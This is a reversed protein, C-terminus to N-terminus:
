VGHPKRHEPKKYELFLIVSALRAPEAGMHEAIDALAAESVAIENRLGFTEELDDNLEGRRQMHSLRIEANEAIGNFASEFFRLHNIIIPNPLHHARYRFILRREEDTPVICEGLSEQTEFQM